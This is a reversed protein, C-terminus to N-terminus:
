RLSNETWCIGQPQSAPCCNLSCGVLFATKWTESPTSNQVKVVNRIRLAMEAEWQSSHTSLYDELPGIRNVDELVIAIMDFASLTGM